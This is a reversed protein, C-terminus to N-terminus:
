LIDFCGNVCDSNFFIRDWIVKMRIAPKFQYVDIPHAPNTFGNAATVADYYAITSQEPLGDADYTYGWEALPYVIDGGFLNYTWSNRINQYTVPHAYDALNLTSLDKPSVIGGFNATEGLFIIEYDIKGDRDNRYISDLKIYGSSFYAGDINIYANAKVTPDFDTSNVNFVARFFDGNSNTNPVRFTRTFVSTTATPEYLDSVSKTFKIPEQAYLDLELYAAYGTVGQQAVYLQIREM